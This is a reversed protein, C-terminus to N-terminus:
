RLSQVLAEHDEVQAPTMKVWKDRTGYFRFAKAAESLDHLDYLFDYKYADYAWFDVLYRNGVLCFDHGDEEAGLVAEANEGSDFGMVCGRLRRALYVATDTPVRPRGIRPLVMEEPDDKDRGERQSDVLDIMHNLVELIEDRDAPGKLNEPFDLPSM